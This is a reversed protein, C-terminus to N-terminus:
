KWAMSTSSRTSDEYLLVSGDSVTKAQSVEDIMSPETITSQEVPQTDDDSEDSSDIIGNGCKEANEVPKPNEVNDEQVDDDSDDGSLECEEEEEEDEIEENDLKHLEKVSLWVMVLPLTTLHLSIMLIELSSYCGLEVLLIVLGVPLWHLPLPDYQVSQNTITSSLM